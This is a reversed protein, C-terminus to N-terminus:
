RGTRRPQEGYAPFQWKGTAPASGTPVYSVERISVPTPVRPLEMQEEQRPMPVPVMPGGDYQFTGDDASPMRPPAQPAPTAPTAPLSYTTPPRIVLTTVPAAVVPAACPFYSYSWAPGFGWGYNYSVVPSHFGFTRPYYGWARPAFAYRPYFGGHFGRFGGYYRGYFGGTYFGRGYFGGGYFGRGYFGRGWGWRAEQTDANLDANTAGLTRITSDTDSPLALRIVDDDARATPVLLVFLALLGIGLTNRVM